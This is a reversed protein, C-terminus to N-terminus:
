LRTVWFSPKIFCRTTSRNVTNSYHFARIRNALRLSTRSSFNTAIQAFSSKHMSLPATVSRYTEGSQIGHPRITKSRYMEVGPFWSICSMAFIRTIMKPEDGSLNARSLQFPQHRQKCRKRLSYEKSTLTMLKVFFSSETGVILHLGQLHICRLRCYRASHNRWYPWCQTCSCM